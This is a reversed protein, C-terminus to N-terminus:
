FIHIIGEFHSSDYGGLVLHGGYPIQQIQTIYSTSNLWISFTRARLSSYLSQFLTPICVSCWVPYDNMALGVLGSYVGYMTNQITDDEYLVNLFKQNSITFDGLAVTETSLNGYVFGAGYTISRNINLNVFSSSASKDFYNGNNCNNGCEISPIWFLNSGTDLISLFSQPPTGVQIDVYYGYNGDNLMSVQGTDRKKSSASLSYYKQQVYERNQIFKLTLNTCPKTYLTVSDYIVKYFFAYM